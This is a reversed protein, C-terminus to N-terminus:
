RERVAPNNSSPIEPPSADAQLTVIGPSLCCSPPSYREQPVAHHLLPGLSSNEIRGPRTTTRASESLKELIASASPRANSYRRWLEEAHIGKMYESRLADENRPTYRASWNSLNKRLDEQLLRAPSGGGQLRGFAHATCSWMVRYWSFVDTPTAELCWLVEPARNIAHGPNIRRPSTAAATRFRQDQFESVYAEQRKGPVGTHEQAHHGQAAHSERAPLGAREPHGTGGPARIEHRPGHAFRVRRREICVVLREKGELNPEADIRTIIELQGPEETRDSASLWSAADEDPAAPADAASGAGMWRLVGRADDRDLTKVHYLHHAEVLEMLRELCDKPEM